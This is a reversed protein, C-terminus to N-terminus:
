SLLSSPRRKKTTCRPGHVHIPQPRYPDVAIQSPSITPLERALAWQLSLRGPRRSYPCITMYLLRTGALRPQPLYRVIETSRRGSVDKISPCVEAPACPELRETRGLLGLLGLLSLLGLLGLLGGSSGGSSGSM